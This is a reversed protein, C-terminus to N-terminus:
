VRCYMSFDDDSLVTKLFVPDLALQLYLAGDEGSVVPAKVRAAEAVMTAVTAVVRLKTHDKNHYQHLIWHKCQHLM